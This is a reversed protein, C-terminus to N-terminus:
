EQYAQIYVFNENDRDSCYQPNIIAEIFDRGGPEVTIVRMGLAAEVQSVTVDDLFVQEGSRLLNSPLQLTDGLDEGADQKDKLQKILDQGTILGSVTITEGFFDNRIPIVTIKVSPFVEELQKAFRLITPYALKGTAITLTRDLSNKLAIYTESKLLTELAAEFEDTLLRLMGVGNELQIYGDYREEEPLPREALIYWEDSAHIFHLGFEEYYQKQYAEIADIIEEAEEKTFTELPYLGDRFKTIGAPVVSVSRMFPLFKALDEISRKLEAGDNVGKCCVIQGNMEINGDYLRQLYKLKEGAFRNNLMKCRLEPNTTQVSINIPALNMRIIRDIDKDKMNTLTIYNGQLFSLRSDDDKFYLTERMGPPMQDIFCFICKNCCSRYESMLANEFELGLDEEYEKDIELEWEEGDAKRILVELYEDQILFRYDFIDEVEEENISLLVDGAEIELEEAISGPKVEKIVHEKM